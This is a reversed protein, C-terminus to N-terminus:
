RRASMRTQLDHAYPLTATASQRQPDALLRSLEVVLRDRDSATPATVTTDLDVGRVVLASRLARVPRHGGASRVQQVDAWRHREAGVTLGAPSLLLIPVAARRRYRDRAAVLVLVGFAVAGVAEVLRGAGPAADGLFLWLAAAWWGLGWLALAVPQWTRAPRGLRVEAAGDVSRVRVTSVRGFLLLLGSRTVTAAVAGVSLFLYAGVMQQGLPLDTTFAAVAFAIFVFSILVIM